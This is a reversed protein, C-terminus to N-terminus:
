PTRPAAQAISQVDAARGPPAALTPGPTPTLDLFHRQDAHLPKLKDPVPQLRRAAKRLIRWARIDNATVYGRHDVDIENFYKAILKFGAKAEELTLHGDHAVNAHAFRQEWTQHAPSSTTKGTTAPEEALAPFALALLIPVSLFRRM